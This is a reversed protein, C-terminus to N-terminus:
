VVLFNLQITYQQSHTLSPSCLLIDGVYQLVTSPILNLSTLDSALAQGFFHPSECFSTPPSDM